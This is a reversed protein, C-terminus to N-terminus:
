EVYGKIIAPNGVVIANEPVDKTVVAGAGILANKGIRIGPLITANAGISAGQEVITQAFSEPYQKSRPKKDNTFAVCPGIFVNDELTIGDWIYVGSKVTVNNGIYVDNEILTHACINCGTGIVADKLIVSYQWVRTNQGINKSHVDSLPHIFPRNVTTLFEDYDRIYDSEDYHESALVLLVCDESFDHMERWTMSEIILGQTPSSLTVEEKQRGNDLVFRCQGHLCIALQKLDKHAHFGRPKDKSAAFIYYIRKIDFPIHQNAEVSVLGGREDGLDPLDILKKLSM